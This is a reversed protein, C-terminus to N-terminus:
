KKVAHFSSSKEVCMLVLKIEVKNAMVDVVSTLASLFVRFMEHKKIYKKWGIIEKKKDAAWKPNLFFKFLFFYRLFLNIDSIKKSVTWYWSSFVESGICVFTENFYTRCKFHPHTHSEHKIWAPCCLFWSFIEQLLIKWEEIDNNRTAFKLIHADWRM